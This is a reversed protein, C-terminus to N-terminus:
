AQRRFERPSVGILKKFYRGMHSQNSFGVKLAIDALKLESYSLAHKVHEIRVNTLYEQPTQALSEKFMRCFHYESLQALDALEALYIQRQYNAQIFDCVLVCIKPSLGGKLPSKLQKNGMRQLMSILITDTVQELALQMDNTHWNARAMNHRFLAELGLDETFTLEPLDITRPDIDFVRLALRKIYTDDFYLHMFEQTDGVQWQSDAGKPMLCFKGPAGKNAKIDTRFTNYGGTLYMSLTHQKNNVYSLHENNNRYHAWTLGHSLSKQRVCTKKSLEFTIPKKNIHNEIIANM